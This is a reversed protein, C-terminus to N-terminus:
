RSTTRPYDTFTAQYFCICCVTAQLVSRLLSVQLVIMFMGCTSPITMPVPLTSPSTTTSQSVLHWYEQKTMHLINTLENLNGTSHRNCTLDHNPLLHSFLLGVEVKGNSGTVFLCGECVSLALVDGVNARLNRVMQRTELDWVKVRGEITGSILFTGDLVMSLVSDGNSDGLLAIEKPAGGDTKDISWLKITGDGGGSVLIEQRPNDTVVGHLLLMCYVYGYHAFPQIYEEDIQLSQTGDHPQM